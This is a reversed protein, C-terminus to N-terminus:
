ESPQRFVYAKDSVGSWQPIDVVRTAIGFTEDITRHMSASGTVGGRGEGVYVLQEGDHARIADTPWDAGFSPWCLLLTHDPYKAVIEHTAEHVTTWTQEPPDADFAVVEGGAEEICYAWYGNGAGIEVVPSADVLVDLVERNPIAWAYKTILQRRLSGASGPGPDDPVTNKWTTRGTTATPTTRDHLEDVYPNSSVTFGRM